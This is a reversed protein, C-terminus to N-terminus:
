ATLKLFYLIEQGTLLLSPTPITSIALPLFLHFSTTPLKTSLITTTIGGVRARSRLVFSYTAIRQFM